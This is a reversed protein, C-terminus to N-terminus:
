NTGSRPETDNRGQTADGYVSAAFRRTNNAAARSGSILIPSRM